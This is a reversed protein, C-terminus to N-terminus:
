QDYGNQICAINANSIYHLVEVNYSFVTSSCIYKSEVVPVPIYKHVFWVLCM